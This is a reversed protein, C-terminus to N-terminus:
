LFPKSFISILIGLSALLIELNNSARESLTLLLLLITFCNFEIAFVM